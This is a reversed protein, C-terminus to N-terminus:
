LLRDNIVKKVMMKMIRYRYYPSLQKSSDYNRELQLICDRVIACDRKLDRIQGRLMKNENILDEKTMASILFILYYFKTNHNLTLTTTNLAVKLLIETIEHRNTKNTSSVPTGSFVV